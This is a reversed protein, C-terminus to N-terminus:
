TPEPPTHSPTAAYGTVILGFRGATVLAHVAVSRRKGLADPTGARLTAILSEADVLALPVNDALAQNMQVELSDILHRVNAVVDAPRPTNMPPGPPTPPTTPILERIWGAIADAAHEEGECRNWRESCEPLADAERSARGAYAEVRKLLGALPHPTTGALAAAIAQDLAVDVLVGAIMLGRQYLREVADADTRVRQALALMELGRLDHGEDLLDAGRRALDAAALQRAHDTWPATM